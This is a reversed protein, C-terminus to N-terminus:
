GKHKAFRCDKQKELILKQTNINSSTGGVTALYEM